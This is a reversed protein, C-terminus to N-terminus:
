SSSAIESKGSLGLEQRFLLPRLKGNLPSRFLNLFLLLFLFRLAPFALNQFALRSLKLPLVLVLMVLGLMSSPIPISSTLVM